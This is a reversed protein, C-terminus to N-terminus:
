RETILPLPNQWVGNVITEFHLHPGTSRGTSGVLGIVTGRAVTDGTRVNKASLHFYRTVWTFGDIEHRLTVFNGASNCFGTSRVVGAEVAIVPTGTPAAIDIGYHFRYVNDIPHWRRGFPSTVNSGIPIDPLPWAFMGGGGAAIFDPVDGGFMATLIGELLLMGIWEEQYIDFNHEEMVTDLLKSYVIFTWPRPQSFGSIADLVKDVGVNTGTLSFFAKISQPTSLTGSRVLIWYGGGGYDDPPIWQWQEYDIMMFEMASVFPNVDDLENDFRVTDFALLEQWSMGIMEAARKYDQVLSESASTLMGGFLTLVILAPLLFSLMLVACGIKIKFKLKSM